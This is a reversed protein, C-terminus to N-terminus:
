PRARRHPHGRGRDSAAHDRWQARGNAADRVCRRRRGAPGRRAARGARTIRCTRANCFAIPCAADAGASLATRILFQLMSQEGRTSQRESLFLDPSPMTGQRANAQKVLAPRWASNRAIERMWGRKPKPKGVLGHVVIAGMSAARQAFLIDALGHSQRAPHMAQAIMAPQQEDIEAVMVAQGLGHGVRMRRGELLRLPQLRFPHHADVALHDRARGLRDIGVQRGALDLDPDLAELDQGFGLLQRQRHEALRVIGLIRPESIAEEIEPAFRQVGIDHLPLVIM